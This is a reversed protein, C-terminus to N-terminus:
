FPLDSPYDEVEDNEHEQGSQIEVNNRKEKRPRGRKRKDTGDQNWIPETNTGNSSVQKVIDISNKGLDDISEKVESYQPEVKTGVRNWVKNVENFEVQSRENLYLTEHYRDAQLTNHLRFHAILYVGTRFDIVYGAAVLEQITAKDTGLTRCIATTNAIFGDDDANLGLYFYLLRAEISLDLFRDDNVFDKNFMRKTAM